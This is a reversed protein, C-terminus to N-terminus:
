HSFKSQRVQSFAMDLEAANCPISGIKWFIKRMSLKKEIYKSPRGNVADPNNFKCDLVYEDSFCM